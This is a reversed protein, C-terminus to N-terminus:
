THYVAAKDLKSQDQSQRQFAEGPRHQNGPQAPIVLKSHQKKPVQIGLAPVPAMEQM